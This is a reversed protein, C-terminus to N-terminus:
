VIGVEVEVGWVVCVVDVFLNVIWCVDCFFLFEVLVFVEVRIVGGVVVGLGLGVGLVWISLLLLFRINFFVGLFGVSIVFGGGGGVVIFDGYVVIGFILLIEGIVVGFIDLGGIELNGGCLGVRELM